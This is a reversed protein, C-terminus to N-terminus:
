KDRTAIATQLAVLITESARGVLSFPNGLSPAGAAASGPAARADPDLLHDDPVTALPPISGCAPSHQHSGPRRLGM